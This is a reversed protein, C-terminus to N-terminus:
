SRPSRVSSGDLRRPGNYGGFGSCAGLTVAALGISVFLMVISGVAPAVLLASLAPAPATPWQQMPRTM